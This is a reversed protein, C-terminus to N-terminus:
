GGGIDHPSGASDPWRGFHLPLLDLLQAAPGLVVQGDVRHPGLGAGASAEHLELRGAGRNRNRGGSPRCGREWSVAMLLYRVNGSTRNLSRRSSSAASVSM